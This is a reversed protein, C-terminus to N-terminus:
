KKEKKQSGTDIVHDIICQDSKSMKFKKQARHKMAAKVNALNLYPKLECSLLRKVFTRNSELEAVKKDKQVKARVRLLSSVCRPRPASHDRKSAIYSYNISQLGGSTRIRKPFSSLGRNSSGVVQRTWTQFENHKHQTELLPGRLELRMHRKMDYVKQKLIRQARQNDNESEPNTPKYIKERECVPGM